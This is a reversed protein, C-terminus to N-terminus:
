VLSLFCVTVAVHKIPMDWLRGAIRLGTDGTTSLASNSPLRRGPLPRNANELNQVPEAHATGFGPQDFQKTQPRRRSRDLHIKQQRTARTALKVVLYEGEAGPDEIYRIAAPRPHLEYSRISLYQLTAPVIGNVVM